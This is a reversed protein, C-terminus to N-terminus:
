RMVVSKDLFFIQVKKMKNGDSFNMHTETQVGGGWELRDLFFFFSCGEVQTCKKIHEKPGTTGLTHLNRGM